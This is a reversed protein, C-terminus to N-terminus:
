GKYAVIYREVTAKNPINNDVYFTKMSLLDPLFPMPYSTTDEKKDEEDDTAVDYKGDGKKKKLFFSTKFFIM